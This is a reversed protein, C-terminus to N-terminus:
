DHVHMGSRQKSGAGAGATRVKTVVPPIGRTTLVAGPGSPQLTEDPKRTEIVPPIGRAM